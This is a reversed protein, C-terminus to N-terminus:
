NIDYTQKAEVQCNISLESEICSVSPFWANAAAVVTVCFKDLQTSSHPEKFLHQLKRVVRCIEDCDSQWEDNKKEKLNSANMDIRVCLDLNILTVSFISNEEYIVCACECRCPTEHKKRKKKRWESERRNINACMVTINKHQACLNEHTDYTFVINSRTEQM